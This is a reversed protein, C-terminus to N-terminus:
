MDDVVEIGLLSMADKINNSIIELLYLKDTEDHSNIIREHAYYSNFTKCMKIIYHCIISPAKKDAAEKVTEPYKSLQKFLPWMKEDFNFQQPMSKTQGKKLISQIRANTYMVYVGTEGDFQLMQDINFEYSNKRDNRLDYFKLAGISIKEAVLEKNKLEPNKHNIIQLAHTEVEEIIDDLLIVKGKRTSMKKGDKLILGFSVHNIDTEINLLKVLESLQKFHVAQEQGVIYLVQDPTYHKTRYLVAALDRTIYLSAGDQKRILAPPLDDLRVIYAGQDYELLNEDELVKVSANLQHNYFSEGQIHDFSVNLKSYLAQFSHISLARFWQWLEIYETHGEELLKFALRAEDDLQPNTEAEVHFKQYLKFLEKIPQEEIAQKQGWMKYAVILKGFQTGWDGLHNIGIVDAGNRILIKSLADGLITARFHGMSFPKAINPSSYDIVIKQSALDTFQYFTHTEIMDIVKEAAMQKNIHFNLFGNINEVSQIYDSHFKNKIEEAIEQPSKKYYKALTFTPLSYEGFSENAPVELLNLIDTKTIAHNLIPHLQEAIKEKFM